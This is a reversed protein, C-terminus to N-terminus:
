PHLKRKQSGVPTPCTRLSSLTTCVSKVLHSHQDLLRVDINAIYKTPVFVSSMIYGRVPIVASTMSTARRWLDISATSLKSLRCIQFPYAILAPVSQTARSKTSIGSWLTIKTMSFSSSNGSSQMSKGSIDSLCPEGVLPSAISAFFPGPYRSIPYLYRLYVFDQL